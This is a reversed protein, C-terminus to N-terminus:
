SLTIELVDTVGFQEEILVMDLTLRNLLLPLNKKTKLRLDHGTFAWCLMLQSVGYCSVNQLNTWFFLSVSNWKM